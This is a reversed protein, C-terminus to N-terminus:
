KFMVTIGLRVGTTSMATSKDTKFQNSYWHNDVGADLYISKFTPIRFGLFLNYSLLMSKSNNNNEINLEPTGDHYKFNYKLNSTKFNFIPGTQLLLGLKQYKATNLSILLPVAIYNGLVTVSKINNTKHTKNMRQWTLPTYAIGTNFEVHANLHYGALLGLVSSFGPNHPKGYGVDIKSFLISVGMFQSIAWRSEHEQYLSQKVKFQAYGSTSFFLILIFFLRKM